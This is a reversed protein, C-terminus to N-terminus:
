CLSQLWWLSQLWECLFQLWLNVPAVENRGNEDFRVRGYMSEGEMKRMAAAVQVGGFRRGM